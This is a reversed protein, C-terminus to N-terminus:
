HAWRWRISNQLAALNPMYSGQAQSELVGQISYELPHLYPLSLPWFDPPWYISMRAELFHRTTLAAHCPGGDQYFIYHGDTSARKLWPLGHRRLLAQFAVANLREGGAVFVPPSPQGESGVIALM